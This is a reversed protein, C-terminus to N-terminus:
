NALNKCLEEPSSFLFDPSHESLVKKSNFGWTVSGIKIEAKRAATIDRVEDGIYIVNNKQINQSKLVSNILKHKGFASSGSVIKKFMLIDHQKLFAKINEESNSSLIYLQCNKESLTKLAEKIGLILPIKNIEQKLSSRMKIAFFPLSLMSMNLRKMIEKPPLDQYAKVESQSVTRYGFQPALRNFVEVAKNLSDAITGDFDFIINQSFM